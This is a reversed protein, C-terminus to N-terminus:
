SIAECQIRRLPPLNAAARQYRCTRCRLGATNSRTVRFGAGCDLCVRDCGGESRTTRAANACAVSCFAKNSHRPRTIASHCHLCHKAPREADRRARFAAGSCACSCYRQRPSQGHFESGCQQCAMPYRGVAEPRNANAGCTFTCYKTGAKKSPAIPGNCHECVRGQKSAILAVHVLNNRYRVRCTASCYSMLIAKPRSLDIDEGCWLCSDGKLDELRLTM